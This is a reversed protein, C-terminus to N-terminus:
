STLVITARTDGRQFYKLCELLVLCPLDWTPIIMNEIYLEKLIFRKLEYLVLLM